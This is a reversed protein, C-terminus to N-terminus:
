KIVGSAKLFAQTDNGFKEMFAVYADHKMFAPQLNNETYIAKYKPDELLKPIAAEWAAVVDAPLGKPGAFGRFKVVAVDVGQEKATKVDPFQKLREDGVVALIRLKGADLQGRIEQVEGMGIDLTHNIVDILMDGGGEFTVVSANSGTKQKIQELAQRELSAPNAAGWKGRGKHAADIVDTLTKFPSDAATYIVEPDYFVNVLPELDRYTKSPTSLLSTYIMTPTTTYFISGDPTSTAVLAVAKAGSGGQVNDVVLTTGLYPQLFPLM